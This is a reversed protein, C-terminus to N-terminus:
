IYQIVSIRDLAQYDQLCMSYNLKNTDALRRIDDAQEHGHEILLFGDKKLYTKVESLLAEIIALGNNEAILAHRPEHQMTPHILYPDNKDIYPPNSVILDYQAAPLASYLHGSFFVVNDLALNKLTREAVVLAEKDIDSAHLTALPYESALAFAIAGSGTCIDAILFEKDTPILKLAHEVLIETEPRPVLTHENVEVDFTWFGKSGLIYAVPKGTQRQDLLKVFANVQEDTLNKDPWAKLLSRDCTLVHALLIEADFRPSHSVSKLQEQATNLAKEITQYSNILTESTLSTQMCIITTAQRVILLNNQTKEANIKLPNTHALM